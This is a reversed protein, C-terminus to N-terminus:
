NENDKFSKLTLYGNSDACFHENNIINCNAIIAYYLASESYSVNSLKGNNEMVTKCFRPDKFENIKDAGSACSAKHEASIANTISGYNFEVLASQATEKDTAVCWGYGNFFNNNLSAVNIMTGYNKRVLGANHNIYWASLLNLNFKFTTNRVIANEIIGNNKWCIGYNYGDKQLKKTIDYNGNEIIINSIKGNKNNIYCLCAGDGEHIVSYNSIKLNKITGKNEYFLSTKSGDKFKMNKLTHFKGDLSGNFDGFKKFVANNFDIDNEIEFFANLNSKIKIFDTENYIKFPNDETGDGLDKTLDIDFESVIKFEYDSPYLFDIKSNSLIQERISKTDLNGIFYTITENTKCDVEIIQFLDFNGIAGLTYYTNNELKNEDLEIHLNSFESVTDTVRYESAFLETRAQTVSSSTETTKTELSAFKAIQKITDLPTGTNSSDTFFGVFAKGINDWSFSNNDSIRLKTSSESTSNTVTVSNTKSISNSISETVAQSSIQGHNISINKILDTKMVPTIFTELLYNEAKGLKYILIHKGNKTTFEQTLEPNEPTFNHQSTLVVKTNKLFDVPKDTDTQNISNQCSILGILATTLILFKLTNIKKM